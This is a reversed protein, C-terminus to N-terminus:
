ATGISCGPCCASPSRATRWCTRCAARCGCTTRSCSSAATRSGCSTPARSRSTSTAISTCAACRAATTAAASCWSARCSAKASSEAEHYVDKLFLNIATLRQTLGRELMRWEAATIIRPLLDFPFIRETGQNDGYVTFTIGQTLFAKDAEMQRQGLDAHSAARCPTSCRAATRVPEAPRSSCRTTRRASPRLEQLACRKGVCIDPAPGSPRRFQRFGDDVVSSRDLLLLYAVSSSSGFRVFARNRPAIRRWPRSVARETKLCKHLRRGRVWVLKCTQDATRGYIAPAHQAPARPLM